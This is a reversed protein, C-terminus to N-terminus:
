KYPEGYDGSLQDYNVGRGVGEAQAAAAALAEAGGRLRDNEPLSLQLLLDPEAAILKTSTDLDALPVLSRPGLARRVGGQRDFDQAYVRRRGAGVLATVPGVGDAARHAAVELSSLPYIPLRRAFAMGSVAALGVRLGTHSGPGRTVALADLDGLRGGAVEVVADFVFDQHRPGARVMGAVLKGGDILAVALERGSTDLALVLHEAM